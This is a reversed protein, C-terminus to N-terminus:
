CTHRYHRIYVYKKSKNQGLRQILELHWNNLQTLVANLSSCKTWNRFKVFIRRKSHPPPPRASDQLRVSCYRFANTTLSLLKRNPDTPLELDCPRACLRSCVLACAASISSLIAFNCRSGSIVVAMAAPNCATALWATGASLVFLLSNRNVSNIFVSVASQPFCMVCLYLIIRFSQRLKLLKDYM